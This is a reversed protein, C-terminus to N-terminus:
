FALKIWRVALFLALIAACIGATYKTGIGLGAFIGALLLWGRRSGAGATESWRCYSLVAATIWLMVLTEVYATAALLMVSTHSAVLVCALLAATTPMERKGMEFVWGISLVMALWSFMQPLLDSGLLLGLASLMESNQPFHSYILYDVPAITRSRIYAAPLPLHYVLADYQHPPVWTTWFSLGLLLLLGSALIVRDRLLLNRNAGLSAIADGMETFGFVWLISLLLVAAWLCMYGVAGLLLMGGALIGLGLTGGILTKESESMELTKFLRLTLRGFSTCILTVLVFKVSAILGPLVASSFDGWFVLAAFALFGVAFGPAALTM